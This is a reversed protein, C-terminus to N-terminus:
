HYVPACRQGPLREEGDHEMDRVAACSANGSGGASAACISAADTRSWGLQVMPVVIESETYRMHEVPHMDDGLDFLMQEPDYSYKKAYRLQQGSHHQGFRSEVYTEHVEAFSLAAIEGFFTDGTIEVRSPSQNARIM